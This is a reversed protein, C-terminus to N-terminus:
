DFTIWLIHPSEVEELEAGGLTLDDYGSAYTCSLSVVMSTTKKTNLRMQWKLCWSHIAVLDQNLSEIVQHRSLPRPIFAYIATDDAHNVMHNNVIHFLQSTYLVFLLPGLISIQPM